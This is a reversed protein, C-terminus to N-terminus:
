KGGGIINTGSVLEITKDHWRFKGKTGEPLIITGYLREAGDKHLVMKLTGNPHPISVTIEKLKGFSPSIAIEKFGSAESSIGGVISMFHYLPSSGWAHCDSRDDFDGEEFTTLGESLM